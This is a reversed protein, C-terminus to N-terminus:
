SSLHELAPLDTVDGIRRVRGAGIEDRLRLLGRAFGRLDLRGHEAHELRRAAEGLLGRAGALNEQSLHHLAAGAMIVGQYLERRPGSEELWVPEVIEHVEFFLGADWAARARELPDDQSAEGQIWTCAAAFRRARDRVWPGLEAFRKGLGGVEDFLPTGDEATIEPPAGDGRAWRELARIEHLALAEGSAARVFLAALADRALLHPHTKM